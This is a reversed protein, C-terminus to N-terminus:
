FRYSAGLFVINASYSPNIYAGSLLSNGPALGLVYGNFQADNYTYREYAYGANVWLVPTVQYMAKLMYSQKRYADWNPIFDTTKGGSLAGPVLSQTDISGDSRVYDHKLRVTLKKPIAYVDVAFGYDYTKDSFLQQWNFNAANQTTGIPSATAAGAFNRQFQTSEIKEYDFYGFIRFLKRFTYDASVDFENRRDDTLGLTSDTYNNKKYRYGLGVNLSEVPSFELLAKFSDMKKSAVDFRGIYPEIANSIAQTAASPIVSIPIQSNAIRDLHEVGVRIVANEIGTFRLEASYTNDTNGSSDGRERDIKVNSYGTALRLNKLIKWDLEAGVQQKTYDFLHNTFPVGLTPDTWTIQDSKNDKKYYKYSVKADMFTLPSATWALGYNQTEVDGNFRGSSITLPVLAGGDYHSSLLDIDSKAKAYSLNANFRSNWFPLKYNGALAWKHYSNDPALPIMDSPQGAGLFIAPNQFSLFNNENTFQSYQYSFAVFFPQKGYGIEMKLNDTRYNIPEPLEVMGAPGGLATDAGIPKVGEKREQSFGVNFYFPKVMNLTVEGGYQKRKTGYDFPLWKSVNTTPGAVGAGSYALNNSGAGAYPTVANWTINHVIEDYFLSYKYSGWKGGELKYSQTDYGIDSADFNLYLGKQDEHSVRIRGYAGVASDKLDRYENFKAKNGHIYPLAGTVEVDLNLNKDDAFAGTFPMCLIILSYFFTRARM